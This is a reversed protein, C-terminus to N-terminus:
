VAKHKLPGAFTQPFVWRQGAFVFHQRSETRALGVGENFKRMHYQAMQPSTYSKNPHMMLKGIIGHAIYDFYKQIIWEPMGQPLGQSDVPDAVSLSLTAVWLESGPNWVIRLIPCKNGANLLYGERPARANPSRAENPGISTLMLFQPPNNPVYEPPNVPVYAPKYLDMLRIVNADQCTNLTYDNCNPVINIILEFLWINSRRFFERLVNFLEMRIVGDLVGTCDVRVLDLIRVINVSASM